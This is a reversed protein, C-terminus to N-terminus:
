KNKRLWKVVLSFPLPPLGFLLSVVINFIEVAMDLFDLVKEGRRSKVIGLQRQAPEMMQARNSTGAGGGPGYSRRRNSNEETAKWTEVKGKVCSVHYCYNAGSSRPVYAWSKFDKSHGQNGCILCISSTKEKLDLVVGNNDTRKFPLKACCPHLYRPKRHSLGQYFSGRVHKGCADCAM